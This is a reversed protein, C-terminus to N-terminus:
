SASSSRVPATAGTLCAGAPRSRGSSWGGRTPACACRRAPSPIVGPPAAAPSAVRWPTSRRMNTCRRSTRTPRRSSTSSSRSSRAPSPTPHGDEYARDVVLGNDRGVDMGSYSTFTVPVTRPMDGGGVPEDNIFLAHGPWRDGAQARRGRVAHTVSSTAPRSAAPPCRGTPRSVSSRTPTASSGTRTSGCASAASSTPWPWSSARPVRARCWSTPRSPTHAGSSARPDHGVPHQRRRGRVPLPDPDAAAAPHRVPGLLRGDAAARPQTGGGEM